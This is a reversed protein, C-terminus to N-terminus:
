RESHGVKLARLLLKAVYRSRPVDGRERDIKELLEKPLSISIIRVRM